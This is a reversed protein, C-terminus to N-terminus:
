NEDTKYLLSHVLQPPSLGLYHDSGIGRCDNWDRVLLKDQLYVKVGVRLVQKKDPGISSSSTLSIVCPKIIAHPSTVIFVFCSICRALLADEVGLVKWVNVSICKGFLPSCTKIFCFFKSLNKYSGSQKGQKAVSSTRNTYPTDYHPHHLRPQQRYQKQLSHLVTSRITITVYNDLSTNCGKTKNKVFQKTTEFTGEKTYKVCLRRGKSAFYAEHRTSAVFFGNASVKFM